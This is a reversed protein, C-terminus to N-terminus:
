DLRALLWARAATWRRHASRESLGMAEAVEPFTLGAFYKLEVVRAMEADRSELEDLAADLALLEDASLAGAEPDPQEPSLTTMLPDAGRKSAARRRAADIIVRRMARGVLGVFHHSDNIRTPPSADLRLFAEHVLATPNLTADPGSARLRARALGRLEGYLTEFIRAAADRDGANLAEVLEGLEGDM